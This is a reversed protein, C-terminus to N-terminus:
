SLLVDGDACILKIKNSKIVFEEKNFTKPHFNVRYNWQAKIIQWTNWERNYYTRGIAIHNQPVSTVKQSNEAILDIIRCYLEFGNEMVKWHLEDLSESGDLMTRESAIIAGSDIGPDLRMVTNGILYFEGTALCWNTCNPGGKIYPSIGTHLNIIDKSNKQCELIINEGILNTGSVVILDAANERIVDLTVEDNINDVHVIPVDSFEPYLTRYREMMHDWAAKIMYGIIRNLVKVFLHSLSLKKNNKPINKSCVICLLDHHHSIKHCLAGMNPWDNTLVVIKMIGWQIKTRNCPM